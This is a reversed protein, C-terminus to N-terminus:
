RIEFTITAWKSEYDTGERDSPKMNIFRIYREGAGELTFVGEGNEDTRTSMEEMLQGQNEGGALVYQNAVAEGDVLCRFRIAGDFGPDYPNNLLVIEAPYALLADFTGGSDDGVMLVTKVHKEYIEVVEDPSPSEQREALTDPIGDHELYGDFDEASLTIDRPKFSAGVVTTGAQTPVFHFYRMNPRTGLEVTEMRQRGAQSVISLDRLRDSEFGAESEVFTGNMFPITVAERQAPFYSEPKLFLDHAQAAPLCVVWFVFCIISKATMSKM